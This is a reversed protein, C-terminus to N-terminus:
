IRIGASKLQWVYEDLNDDRATDPIGYRVAMKHLGERTIHEGTLQHLEFGIAEWTKWPAGPVRRHALFTSLPGRKGLARSLLRMTRTERVAETATPM